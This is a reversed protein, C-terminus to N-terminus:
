MKYETSGGIDSFFFGIIVKSLTLNKKAWSLFAHSAQKRVACICRAIITHKFFAKSTGKGDPLGFFNTITAPCKDSVM